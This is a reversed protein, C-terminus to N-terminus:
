NGGPAPFATLHVVDGAALACGCVQEGEIRLDSGLGLSPGQEAPAAALAALFPEPADFRTAPVPEDPRASVAAADIADVVYARVLGAFATAFVEPRGIAELGV